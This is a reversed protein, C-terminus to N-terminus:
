FLELWASNAPYDMMLCGRNLFDHMGLIIPMESTHCLDAQITWDTVIENWNDDLLSITIQGHTAELDCEPRGSISPITALKGMTVM